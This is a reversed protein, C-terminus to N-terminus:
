PSATRAAPLRSAHINRHSRIISPRLQDSRSYAVLLRPKKTVDASKNHLEDLGDHHDGRRSAEGHVEGRVAESTTEERPPAPAVHNDPTSFFHSTSRWHCHVTFLQSLILLRSHYQIHIVVTCSNRLKKTNQAGLGSFKRRPAM